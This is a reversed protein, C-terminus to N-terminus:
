CSLGTFNRFCILYFGDESLALWLKFFWKPYTFTYVLTNEIGSTYKGAPFPFFLQSFYMNSKKLTDKGIWPDGEGQASPIGLALSLPCVHEPILYGEEGVFAVGEEAQLTPFEGWRKWASNLYKVNSIHQTFHVTSQPTPTFYTQSSQWNQPISLLQTCTSLLLKPRLLRCGSLHGQPESSWFRKKPLLTLIEFRCSTM